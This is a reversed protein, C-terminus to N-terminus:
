LLYSQPRKMASYCSHQLVLKADCMVEHPHCIFHPSVLQKRTDTIFCQLESCEMESLTAGPQAAAEIGALHKEVEAMVATVHRQQSPNLM